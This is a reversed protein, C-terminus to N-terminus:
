EAAEEARQARVAEDEERARRAEQMKVAIILGAIVLAVPWFQIALAVLLGVGVLVVWVPTHSVYSTHEGLPVRTRIFAM